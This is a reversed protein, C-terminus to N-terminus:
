ISTIFSRNWILLLGSFISRYMCSWGPRLMLSSDRLVFMFRFLTHSNRINKSSCFHIWVFLGPFSRRDISVGFPSFASIAMCKRTFFSSGWFTLNM